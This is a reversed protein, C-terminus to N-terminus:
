AGGGVGAGGGAGGGGVGEWGGCGRGGGGPPEGEEDAEEPPGGPRRPLRHLGLCDCVRGVADVSRGQGVKSATERGDGLYGQGRLGDPTNPFTGTMYETYPIDEVGGSIRSNRLGSPM